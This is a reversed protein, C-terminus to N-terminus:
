HNVANKLKGRKDGTLKSYQFNNRLYKHVFSGKSPYTIMKRYLSVPVDYYRYVDGAGGNKGKFQVYVDGIKPDSNSVEVGISWVNSSRVRSMDKPSFRKHNMGAFIADYRSRDSTEGLKISAFIDGTSVRDLKEILEDLDSYVANSSCYFTRDEPDFQIWFNDTIYWKSGLEPHGKICFADYVFEADENSIPIYDSTAHIYDHQSLFTEASRVTRFNTGWSTIHTGKLISFSGDRSKMLTYGSEGIYKTATVKRFKM